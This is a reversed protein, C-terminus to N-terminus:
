EKEGFWPVAPEPFLLEKMEEATERTMNILDFVSFGNVKCQDRLAEYLPLNARARRAACRDSVGGTFENKRPLPVAMETAKFDAPVGGSFTKHYTALTPWVCEPRDVMRSWRRWQKLGYDVDTGYCSIEFWDIWGKNLWIDPRRGQYDYLSPKGFASLKLGPRVNDLAERIGKVMASVADEHWQIYAPPLPYAHDKKLDRGTQQKYTEKCYDCFCPEKIRIFDLKVGDIDYNGAVEAIYNIFHQRFEPKHLDAVKQSTGNVRWEPHEKLLSPGGWNSDGRAVGVTPHVQMGAAHAEKILVSFTDEGEWISKRTPMVKSRVHSTGGSYIGYGCINMGATKAAEISTRANQPSQWWRLYNAHGFIFRSEMLTGDKTRIDRRRTPTNLWVDMAIPELADKGLTKTVEERRMISDPGLVWVVAKIEINAIDFMQEAYTNFFKHRTLNESTYLTRPMLEIDCVEHSDAGSIVASVEAGPLDFTQGKADTLTLEAGVYGQKHWDVAIEGISINYSTLDAVTFYCGNKFLRLKNMPYEIPSRRTNCQGLSKKTQIDIMKFRTCGTFEHAGKALPVGTYMWWRRFPIEMSFVGKKSMDWKAQTYFGLVNDTVTNEFVWYTKGGMAILLVDVPEEVEYTMYLGGQFAAMDKVFHFVDATAFLDLVILKGKADRGEIPAVHITRKKHDIESMKQVQIDALRKIARAGPSGTEWWPEIERAVSEARGPGTSVLTMMIGSLLMNM